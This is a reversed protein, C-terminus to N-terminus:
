SDLSRLSVTTDESASALLHANPAFAIQNVCGTHDHFRCLERLEPWRWVVVTGDENGGAVLQRDGAGIAVSALCILAGSPSHLQGIVAATQTDWWWLSSEGAVIVQQEDPAFVIDHITPPGAYQHLIAGTDTEFLFAADANSISSEDSFYQQAVVFRAGDRTVAIRRILGEVGTRYTRHIHLDDSDLLQAAGHLTEDWSAILIGRTPPVWAACDAQIMASTLTARGTQLDVLGSDGFATDAAFLHRGDPLLLADTVGSAAYRYTRLAAGSAVEWLTVGDFVTASLLQSSDQSFHVSVVPADHRLLM